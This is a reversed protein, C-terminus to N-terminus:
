IGIYIFGAWFYPKAFPQASPYKEYYSIRKAVTEPMARGKYAAKYWDTLLMESASAGRLWQQARRLAAQPALGDRMHYRYFAALLIAAAEDAVPWQAAIVGQAGSRLFATPFGILEDPANRADPLATQCASLVVLESGLDVGQLDALTLGSRGHLALRSTLVAQPVFRGHCAMHLHTVGRSLSPLVRERTADSGSLVRCQAFERSVSAVEPIAFPLPRDDSQGDASSQYDSVVVALLSRAAPATARKWRSMQACPQYAIEVVEDAWGNEGIRAAHLPMSSLEQCAILRMRGFGLAKLRTCLPGMLDSGLIGLFRDLPEGLDGTELHWLNLLISPGGYWGLFERKMADNDFRDLWVVHSSTFAKAGHPVIVALSGVDTITLYVYPAATDSLSAIESFTCFAGPLISEFSRVTARCEALEHSLAHFPRPTQGASVSSMAM